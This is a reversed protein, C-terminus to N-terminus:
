CSFCQASLIPNSRYYRGGPFAPPGPLSKFHWKSSMFWFYEDLVWVFQMRFHMGLLYPTPLCQKPSRKPASCCVSECFSVPGVAASNFRVVIISCCCHLLHAALRQLHPRLKYQQIRSLIATWMWICAYQRDMNKVRHLLECSVAKENIMVICHPMEVLKFVSVFRHLDFPQM